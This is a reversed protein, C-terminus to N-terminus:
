AERPFAQFHYNAGEFEFIAKLDDARKLTHRFGKHVGIPLGLAEFAKLVSTFNQVKGNGIRVTVAAKVAVFQRNAQPYPRPTVIPTAPKAPEPKAPEVKAPVTVNQPNKITWVRTVRKARNASWDEVKGDVVALAHRRVFVIHRGKGLARGITKCTYQGGDRKRPNSVEYEIGLDSLAAIFTHDYTGRGKRRGNAAFAKHVTDYDINAAIAAAKVACDNNEGKARSATETDAFTLSAPAESKYIEEEDIEGNIAAIEREDYVEDSPEDATERSVIKIGRYGEDKWSEREAEIEAACDSRLFSGYLVEVQGEIKATVEYYTTM